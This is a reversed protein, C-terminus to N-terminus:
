LGRKSQDMLELIDRGKTTLMRGGGGPIVYQRELLFREWTKYNAETNFGLADTLTRAGVKGHELLFRLVRSDDNTLGFMGIGNHRAAQIADDANAIDHRAVRAVKELMKLNQRIQRPNNRGRDVMVDVADESLSLGMRNATTRVIEELDGEDYPELKIISTFRSMLAPTLKSEDTTAAILSFGSHVSREGGLLDNTWLGDEMLPLLAEQLKPQLDQVEDIFLTGQIDVWHVYADLVMKAKDPSSLGKLTRGYLECTEETLRHSALDRAEVVAFRYLLNPLGDGSWEDESGQEGFEYHPWNGARAKQSLINAYIRALTTKGTGPSGVILVSPGQLSTADTNPSGQISLEIDDILLQLTAKADEQAIYDEFTVPRVNATMTTM